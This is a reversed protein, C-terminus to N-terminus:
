SGHRDELLEDLAQIQAALFVRDSEVSVQEVAITDRAHAVSRTDSTELARRATDIVAIQREVLDLQQRAQGRAATMEARAKRWQEDLEYPAQRLEALRAELYRREAGRRWPAGLSISVEALGYWDVPDVPIIGGTVRLQWSELARLASSERELAMASDEYRRVLAGPPGAPPASPLQGARAEIRRGEGEVQSLKQELADIHRRLEDFQVVTVVQANLRERAKAAVARWEEQRGRLYGAQRRLAALRVAEAGHELVQQMKGQAEHSACSLDAVNMVRLGRYLDLPSFSLAARVQYGTGVTSGIDLHTAEPFRIGQLLLRPAALLAAESAAQARVKRCFATEEARAPSGPWVAYATVAALLPVNSM